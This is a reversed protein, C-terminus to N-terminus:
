VSALDLKNLTKRSEAFQKEANEALEGAQRVDLMRRVTVSESDSDNLVDNPKEHASDRLVIMHGFLGFPEESILEIEPEEVHVRKFSNDAVKSLDM